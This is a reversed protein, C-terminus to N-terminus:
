ARSRSGGVARSSEARCDALKGNSRGDKYTFERSDTGLELLNEVLELQQWYLSLLGSYHKRPATSAVHCVLELIDRVLKEMLSFIFLTIVRAGNETCFAKLAVFEDRDGPDTLRMSAARKGLSRFNSALALLDRISIPGPEPPAHFKMQEASDGLVELPERSNLDSTNFNLLRAASAVALASFSSMALM